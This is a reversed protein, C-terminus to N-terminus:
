RHSLQGPEGQIPPQSKQCYQHGDAGCSIVPERVFSGNASPHKRLHNAATMHFHTLTGNPRIFDDEELHPLSRLTIVYPYYNGTVTNVLFFFTAYVNENSIACLLFWKQQMWKQKGFRVIHWNVKEKIHSTAAEDSFHVERALRQRKGDQSPDRQLTRIASGSRRNGTGPGASFTAKWLYVSVCSNPFTTRLYSFILVQEVRQFKHDTISANGFVTLLHMLFLLGVLISAKAIAGKGNFPIEGHKFPYEARQIRTFNRAFHVKCLQESEKKALELVCWRKFYWTAMKLVLSM